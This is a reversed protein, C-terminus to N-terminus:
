QLGPFVFRSSSFLGHVVISGVLSGREHRASCRLGTHKKGGLLVQTVRECWVGHHEHPWPTGTELTLSVKEGDNWPSILCRNFSVSMSTEGAGQKSNHAIFHWFFTILPTMQAKTDGGISSQTQNSDNVWSTQLILCIRNDGLYFIM